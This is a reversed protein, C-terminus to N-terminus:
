SADAFSDRRRDCDCDMCGFHWRHRHTEHGCKCVQRPADVIELGHIRLARVVRQWEVVSTRETHWWKWLEEASNFHPELTGMYWALKDAIIEDSRTFDAETHHGDGLPDQIPHLHDILRHKTEYDKSMMVREIQDLQMFEARIRMSRQPRCAM